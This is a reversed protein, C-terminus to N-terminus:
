EQEGNLVPYITSDLLSTGNIEDDTDIWVNEDYDIQFDAGNWNVDRKAVEVLASKLAEIKQNDTGYEVYITTM